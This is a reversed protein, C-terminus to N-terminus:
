GGAKRDIESRKFRGFRGIQFLSGLLDLQSVMTQNLRLPGTADIKEISEKGYKGSGPIAPAEEKQSVPAEQIPAAIALFSFYAAIM